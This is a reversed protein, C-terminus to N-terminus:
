TGSVPGKRERRHRIVGRRPKRPEAPRGLYQFDNWPSVPEWTTPQDPPEGHRALPVDGLMPVPAMGEALRKRSLRELLIAMGAAVMLALVATLALRGPLTQFVGDDTSPVPRPSPGRVIHLDTAPDERALEEYRQALEEYRDLLVQREARLTSVNGGTAISRDAREIQRGLAGLESTLQEAEAAIAAAREDRLYGLLEEAFTGALMTAEQRTAATATIQMLETEDYAMAQVRQTLARTNGAYGLRAAVRQAVEETTALRAVTQVNPSAEREPPDLIIAAAEYSGPATGGTLRDLLLVTGVAIVV